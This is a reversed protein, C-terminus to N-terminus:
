YCRLRLLEGLIQPIVAAVASLAERGSQGVRFAHLQTM